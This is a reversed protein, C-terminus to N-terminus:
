DDGDRGAVSVQSARPPVVEPSDLIEAKVMRAERVATLSTLRPAPGGELLNHSSCRTSPAELPAVM